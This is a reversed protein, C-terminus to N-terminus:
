AASRATGPFWDCPPRSLREAPVRRPAAESCRLARAPQSFSFPGMGGNPDSTAWSAAITGHQFAESKLHTHLGVFAALGRQVLANAMTSVFEGVCMCLYLSPFSASLRPSTPPLTDSPSYHVCARTAAGTCKGFDDTSDHRSGNRLRTHSSFRKNELPCDSDPCITPTQSCGVDEHDTGPLHNLRPLDCFSRPPCSILGYIVHRTRSASQRRGPTLGSRPILTKTWDFSKCGVYNPVSM